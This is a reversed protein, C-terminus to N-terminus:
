FTSNFEDDNDGDNSDKDKDEDKDKDKSKSSPQSTVFQVKFEDNNDRCNSDLAKRESM